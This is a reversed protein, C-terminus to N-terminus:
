PRRRCMGTCRAIAGRGHSMMVVWGPKLANAYDALSTIVGGDVLEATVTVGANKLRSQVGALYTTETERIAGDPVVATQLSEGDLM